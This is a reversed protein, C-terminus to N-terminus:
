LNLEKFVVQLKPPADEFWIWEARFQLGPLTSSECTEEHFQLEKFQGGMLRFFSSRAMTEPDIIWYEQVGLREYEAKKRVEDRYRSDPSLIEIIFAPVGVFATLQVNFLERKRSISM